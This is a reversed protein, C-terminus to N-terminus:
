TPTTPCEYRVNGHFDDISFDESTHPSPHEDFDTAGPLQLM